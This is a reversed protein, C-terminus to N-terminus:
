PASESVEGKDFVHFVFRGNEIFFTNVYKLNPVDADQIDHGTGYIVVNRYVFPASQDVLAWIYVVGSQDQATLLQAGRPMRILTNGPGIPYKYVSHM